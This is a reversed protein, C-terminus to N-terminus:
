RSIASVNKIFYSADQKEQFDNQLIPGGGRKIVKRGEPAVRLFYTSSRGM